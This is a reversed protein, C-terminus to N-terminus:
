QERGKLDLRMKTTGLTPGAQLGGAEGGHRRGTRLEMRYHKGTELTLYGTKRWGERSLTMGSRPAPSCMRLGTFRRSIRRIFPSADWPNFCWMPEEIGAASAVELVLDPMAAPRYRWSAFPCEATSGADPRLIVGFPSATRGAASWREWLRTVPTARAEEEDAVWILELMGNRFFFGAARPARDRSAPEASGGVTRVGGTNAAAPAGVATCIFVHDLVAAMVQVIIAHFQARGASHNRPYHADTASERKM